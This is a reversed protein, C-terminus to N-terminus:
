FLSTTSVLERKLGVRNAKSKKVEKSLRKITRDKRKREVVNSYNINKMNAILSCIKKDKKIIGEYRDKQKM